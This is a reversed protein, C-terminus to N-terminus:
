DGLKTYRSPRFYGVIVAPDRVAIQTHTKTFISAGPYAPAGEVFVGRVTQYFIAGLGYTRDSDRLHFNLVACDLDRLLLDDLARSGARNEPLPAGLARISSAFDEYAGALADTAASRTLDFCRGSHIFAAILPPNKVKGRNRQEVAFQWAREQNRERFYLSAGLWVGPNNSPKM